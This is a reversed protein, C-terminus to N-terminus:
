DHGERPVHISIDYKQNKARQHERRAGRPARPNFNKTFFLILRRHMTTGRAPCTSQFIIYRNTKFFLVFDHGERPVHISIKRDCKRRACLARRAGRPARPNFNATPETTASTTPTTGRAPCTSQFEREDTKQPAADLDHGERPVHISIDGTFAVLNSPVFDHGERPM